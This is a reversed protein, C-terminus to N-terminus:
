QSGLGSKIAVDWAARALQGDALSQDGAAAEDARRLDAGDAIAGEASVLDRDSVSDLPPDDISEIGDDRVLSTPRGASFWRHTHLHYPDRYWGQATV